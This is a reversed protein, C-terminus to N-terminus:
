SVLFLNKTEGQPAGAVWVGRFLRDRPGGGGLAGAPTQPAAAGGEGGKGIPKATLPPGNVGGSDAIEPGSASNRLRFRHHERHVVSGRKAGIPPGSASNHLM